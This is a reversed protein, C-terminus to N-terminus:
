VSSSVAKPELDRSAEACDDLDIWVSGFRRMSEIVPLLSHGKETLQYEVRPPVEAFCTRIVVASEELRRLRESLTKPSIGALSRELESFRKHGDALDRLILPTWKNGMIQATRAVPCGVNSVRDTSSM